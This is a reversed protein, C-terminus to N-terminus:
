RVAGILAPNRGLAALLSARTDPSDDLRVAEAALRLAEDFLEQHRGDATLLEVGRGLLPAVHLTRARTVLSREIFDQVDEDRLVQAAGHLSAAVQRGLSRVGGPERGRSTMRPGAAGAAAPAPAHRELVAVAAAAASDGAAAPALFPGQQLVASAEVPAAAPVAM